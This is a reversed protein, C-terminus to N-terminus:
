CKLYVLQNDNMILSKLYYKAEIAKKLKIGIELKKYYIIESSDYGNM